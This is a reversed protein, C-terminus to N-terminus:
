HFFLEYDVGRLGSAVFDEVDGGELLEELVLDLDIATDSVQTIGNLDLLDAIALNLDNRV